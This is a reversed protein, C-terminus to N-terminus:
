CQAIQPRPSHPMSIASYLTDVPHRLDPVQHMLLLVAPQALKRWRSAATTPIPGHLCMGSRKLM